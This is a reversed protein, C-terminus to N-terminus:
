FGKRKRLEAREKKGNMWIGGETVIRRSGTTEELHSSWNALADAEENGPIQVHVRVWSIASDQSKENRENLLKKIDKEIGSRPPQGQSLNTVTDIAAQSDSLLLITDDQRLSELSLLIGQREADAVTAM